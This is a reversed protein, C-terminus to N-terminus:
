IAAAGLVERVRGIASLTAASPLRAASDSDGLLMVRTKGPKGCSMLVFAASGVAEFYNIPIRAATQPEFADKVTVDIGYLHVQTFLDASVPSPSMPLRLVKCLADADEGFGASAALERRRPDVVLLLLRPLKLYEALAELVTTLLREKPLRQAVAAEVRQLLRDVPPAPQQADNSFSNAVAADAVSV